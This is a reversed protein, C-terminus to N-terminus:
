KMEELRKKVIKKGLCAVAISFYDIGFVFDMESPQFFDEFTLVKPKSNEIHEEFAPIGKEWAWEGLAKVPIIKEPYIAKINDLGCRCCHVEGAGTSKEKLFEKFNM